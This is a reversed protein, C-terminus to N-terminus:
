GAPLQAPASEVALRGPVPHRRMVLVAGVFLVGAVAGVILQPASTGKASPDGLRTGILALSNQACHCLMAPFLSDCRWAVVGLWVGLPIVALVHEPDFHAAVFFVSSVAIAAAPPWRQLLRRQLYGRFLAEECLPPLVCIMIALAALGAGSPKQMMTLIMQMGASPEPFLWEAVSGGLWGCFFTGGILLPLARWPLLSRTYGLRPALRRRALLTAAVAVGLLTLQGPLVLVTSGWPRNLLAEIIGNMDLVRGAEFVGMPLLAIVLVIASSGVSALLALVTGVLATWLRPPPEPLLFPPADGPL